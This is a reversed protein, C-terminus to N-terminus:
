LMLSEMLLMEQLKKLATWPVQHQMKLLTLWLALAGDILEMELVIKPYIMIFNPSPHM